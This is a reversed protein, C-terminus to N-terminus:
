LDVDLMLAKQDRSVGLRLLSGRASSSAQRHLMTTDAMRVDNVSLIFDTKRLGAKALLSSAPVDLVLVGALGPLGLASMEGEDRLNRVLAGLWKAPATDRASLVTAPLKPQPFEPTRAIAKLEPKQVGFQHM